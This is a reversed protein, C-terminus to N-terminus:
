LWWQWRHRPKWDQKTAGRLDDTNLVDVGEHVLTHWVHNRLGIPWTPTGWYRVKLGLEHAAHIQSRLTALQVDSLRGLSLSGIAKRFDASAYYSNSPNYTSDMQRNDDATIETPFTLNGLPADYFVDRYTANELIQYFPADGSVVITIPGHIIDSGNFHTLYGKERLPNLQEVLLPWTQDGEPKCDILLTLTQKPDYPFLGVMEQNTVKPWNRSPPANSKDLMKLLPDLYLSQLTGRLVTSRSHGVLIQNEWPWVDVEVGTCGARLASRLPVHRWYDNHSNCPVPVVAHNFWKSGRSSREGPSIGLELDHQFLYIFCQWAVAFFNIIGSFQLM